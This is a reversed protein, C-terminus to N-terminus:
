PMESPFPTFGLGLLTFRIFHGTLTHHMKGTSSDTVCATVHLGGDSSGSSSSITQLLDKSFVFRTSGYIQFVITNLHKRVYALLSVGLIDLFSFMVEKTQTPTLASATLTVALTGQVPQGSPYSCLRCFCSFYQRVSRCISAMDNIQM